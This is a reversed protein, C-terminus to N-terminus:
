GGTRSRTPAEDTPALVRTRPLRRDLAEDRRDRDRRTRHSGRSQPDSTVVHLSRRKWAGVSCVRAATQDEPSAAKGQLPAEDAVRYTPGVRKTGLRAKQTEPATGRGEVVNRRGAEDAPALLVELHGGPRPEQELCRSPALPRSDADPGVLPEVRRQEDRRRSQAASLESEVAPEAALRRGDGASHESCAGSVTSISAVACSYRKPSPVSRTRSTPRM